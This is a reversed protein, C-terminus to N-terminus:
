GVPEDRPGTPDGLVNALLTAQRLLLADQGRDAVLQLGLPLRPGVPMPVSIAPTGLTTWPSNMRPDGTSGFGAPAPGTAAPTLVVPTEAFADAAQSRCGAIIQLADRYTEVAIGL